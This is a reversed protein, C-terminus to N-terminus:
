QIIITEPNIDVNGSQASSKVHNKILQFYQIGIECRM